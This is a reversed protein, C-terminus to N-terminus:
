GRRTPSGSRTARWGGCTSWACSGCIGRATRSPSRQGSTSRGTRSAPQPFHVLYYHTPDQARVILGLDAFNAKLQVTFTADVDTYAKAKYFALCYGQLGDGDGAAKGAIGGADTNRWTSNVFTWDRGDGVKLAVPGPAGEGAAVPLGSVVTLVIGAVARRVTGASGSRM